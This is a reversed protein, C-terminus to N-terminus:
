WTPSSTASAARSDKPARIRYLKMRGSPVPLHSKSRHAALRTIRPRPRRSALACKWTAAMGVPASGPGKKLSRATRGHPLNAAM